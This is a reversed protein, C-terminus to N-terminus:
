DPYKRMRKQRCKNSCIVIYGILHLPYYRSVLIHPTLILEIKLGNKDEGVVKFITDHTNFNPNGVDIVPKYPLADYTNAVKIFNPKSIDESTSTSAM